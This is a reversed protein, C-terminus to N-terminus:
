KGVPYNQGHFSNRLECTGRVHFRGSEMELYLSVLGNLLYVVRSFNNAHCQCSQVLGTVSTSDTLLFNNMWRLLLDSDMLSCSTGTFHEFSRQKFKIKIIRNM